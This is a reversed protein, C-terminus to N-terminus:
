GVAGATPFDPSPTIEQAGAPAVDDRRVPRIESTTGILDPSVGRESSRLGVAPATPWLIDGSVRSRILVIFKSFNLVTSKGGAFPESGPGALPNM